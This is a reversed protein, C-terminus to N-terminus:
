VNNRLRSAEGFVQLIDMTIFIEENTPQLFLVVDDAYFSVRHQLTRTSILQLLGEDEAKSILYGLLYIALIFLIPSLPDGQRLGRKHIITAGPIWEDSSPYIFVFIARQCYGEM